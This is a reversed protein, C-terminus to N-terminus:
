VRLIDKRIEVLSVVAKYSTDIRAESHEIMVGM